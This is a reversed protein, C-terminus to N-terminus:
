GATVTVLITGALPLIVPQWSLGALDYDAASGQIEPMNNAGPGNTRWVGDVANIAEVLEGLHITPDYFWPAGEIPDGFAPGPIGALRPSLFDGIAAVVRDHVDALDWGPYAIVDAEVNVTDYAPARVRALFGAERRANQSAEIRQRATVGPDLGDADIVWTTVAKDADADPAVGGVVTVVPVTDSGGTLNTGNTTMAPQNAEGLENVFEVRVATGPLPGGTVLINGASISALSQLKSLVIGATENWNVAATTNGNFTITFTGGTSDHPGLTQVENTGPLYRNISYARAVAPDDIADSAFDGPLILRPASRRFARTLRNLFDSLLEQDAGGTATTATQASDLWPIVRDTARMPVSVGGLGNPGSGIETATLTFPDSTTSGVPITVEDDSTFQYATSGTAALSFVTGADLMYGKTDSATVTATLTAPAGNIQDLGALVAIRRFIDDPVNAALDRLEAIMRAHADINASDWEAPNPVYDPFRDKLWAHADLALTASDTEIPWGEYIAGIASM